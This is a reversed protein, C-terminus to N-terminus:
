MIGIAMILVCLLNHTMHLLINYMMNGNQTYVYAMYSGLVAYPISNAITLLVTPEQGITHVLGFAIGSILVYVIDNKILKRIAGRFVTEEVLPAYIIALLATIGLNLTQLTEQNTSQGFFIVVIISFPMYVLYMIGYKTFFYKLSVKLKKKFAMFMQKYEKFYFGLSMGMLSIYIVASELATSISGLYMLILSPISVPFLILDVYWPSTNFFDEFPVFMVYMYTFIMLISLLVIEKTIKPSKFKKIDVKKKEKVEKVEKDKVKPGKSICALVLSVIALITYLPNLVTSSIDITIIAFIILLVKKAKINNKISCILGVLSFAICTLIMIIISLKGGSSTYISTMQNILDSPVLGELEKFSTVISDIISDVRFFGFFAILIQLSYSFAEVINLTKDYYNVRKKNKKM